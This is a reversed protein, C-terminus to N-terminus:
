PASIDATKVPPAPADHVTVFVESLAISRLLDPMRYAARAFRGEFYNLTTTDDASVTGGTAYTYVRKVLCSTLAPQDHLSQGLGAAGEFPKDNFAGSVDIPAGKETDRYQGSGDFHELALGIPDTIKHCGACVPNKRHLELRDRQTKIKPDPNELASFDVNAPPSPVPQCLLLERLAKGRLTPSSRGPHSHLALFSVQTLIGVRPDGAPVEYTIWGSAPVGYFAGLMPSLFTTRTTYLDRYDGKKVLLQDVITRLTQERADAAMKATFAPYIMPDKALSAFQDFGFMDDFFARVGAELRPSSLMRDVVRARGKETLIEGSEAAKLVADDPAANWLFLSLRSAQSYADLRMRGPHQPDPEATDAVLLVRPSILMGELAIQLGAYFDKVRVATEGAKDVAEKLLADSIPRRYLLRGVAKLFKAACVPDAAREDAPACGILFDRHRRDVALAAVASAVRQYQEVQSPTIGAKGAGIGLLGDTRPLPAFNTEVKVDDGFVYALTNIYQESTLLRLRRSSAGEPEKAPEKMASARSATPSAAAHESVPQACNTLALSVAIAAMGKALRM